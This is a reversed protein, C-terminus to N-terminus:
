YRTWTDGLVRLLNRMRTEGYPAGSDPVLKWLDDLHDQIKEMNDHCRDLPTTDPSLKIQQPLQLSLLGLVGITSLLLPHGGM